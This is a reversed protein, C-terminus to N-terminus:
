RNYKTFSKFFKLRDIYSIVFEISTEITALVYQLIPNSSTTIASSMLKVLLENHKHDYKAPKSNFKYFYSYRKGVASSEM